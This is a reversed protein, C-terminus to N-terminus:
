FINRIRLKNFFGYLVVVLCHHTWKNIDEVILCKCVPCLVLAGSPGKVPLKEELSKRQQRLVELVWCFGKLIDMKAVRSILQMPEKVLYSHTSCSEKVNGHGKTGAPWSLSKHRVAMSVPPSILM